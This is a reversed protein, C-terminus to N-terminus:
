EGAKGNEGPQSDDGTPTGPDTNLADIVAAVFPTLADGGLVPFVHAFRKLNESVVSPGLAILAQVQEPYLMEVVDAFDKPDTNRELARAITGATAVDDAQRQPQAPAAGPQAPAPQHAARAAIVKDIAGVLQPMSEILADGISRGGGNERKALALGKSLMDMHSQVLASSDTAPSGSGRVRDVLQLMQEFSPALSAPERAAGMREMVPALAQAVGTAITAALTAPDLAPTAPAASAAAEPAPTPAVRLRRAIDEQTLRPGLVSIRQTRAIKGNVHVKLDFEGGGCQRQVIEPDIPGSIKTFYAPRGSSSRDGREEDTEDLRYVWTTLHADQPFATWWEPLEPTNTPQEIELSM